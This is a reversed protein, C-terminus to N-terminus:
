ATSDRGAVIRYITAAGVIILLIPFVPLELGVFDSVGSGLALVGVVLWFGSVKIDNLYRVGALGLIILGTGVLWASEPIWGEPVLWLGGLMILFLGWGISDLHQDLTKKRVDQDSTFQDNHENV